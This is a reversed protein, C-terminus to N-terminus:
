RLRRLKKLYIKKEKRIKYFLYFIVLIFLFYVIWILPIKNSIAEISSSLEFTKKGDYLIRGSVVYKGQKQPTFYLNFVELSSVPVKFVDSELIEVIKGDRTIQGKFQADVEKEGTNKFNAIIKTTEGVVVYDATLINLLVGRVSLAGEKLIDFTLTQDTLCEPVYVDSWYQGPELNNSNIRFELEEETSPLITDGFFEESNLVTIKDFDWVDFVVRPNLRVNGENEVNMKLIIDDGEEASSVKLSSAVCRVIEVDTVGVSIALDISSKIIGVAHEEISEGSSGVEVRLFGSYNGNPIDEPPLVSIKLLYPENRSVFFEESSFNLWESIDGRPKLIVPVPTESDSSVVVIKEAYGGRLVNNFNISAPSIGINAASLFNLLFLFLIGGVFIRKGTKKNIMM